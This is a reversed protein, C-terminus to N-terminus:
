APDTKRKMMRVRAKVRSRIKRGLLRLRSRPTERQLLYMTHPIITRAIEEPTSHKHEVDPLLELGAKRFLHQVFASCYLSHDQALLNQGARRTPNRLAFLTGFLERVSYRARTAVLELGEALVTNLQTETLGFDLVALNGFLKEDHYKTVRNEQVGLRIHKHHIQLDSELVWHHGDARRGQFIFAHSWVGWREQEDLHREARCIAKDVLTVGGSLGICGPRAHRELFEQNTLGTVLVPERAAPATPM